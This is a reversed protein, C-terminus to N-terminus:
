CFCRTGPVAMTQQVSPSFGTNKRRSGRFPAELDSEQHLAARDPQLKRASMCKLGVAFTGVIHPYCPIKFGLCVFVSRLQPQRKKNPPNM